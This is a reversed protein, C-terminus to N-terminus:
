LEHMVSVEARLLNPDKIKRRPIEPRRVYYTTLVVRQELPLRNVAEDIQAIYWPVRINDSQDHKGSRQVRCGLRALEILKQGPGISSYGLGETEKQRWWWGWHSLTHRVDILTNLILTNV